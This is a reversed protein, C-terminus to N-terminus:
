EMPVARVSNSQLHNELNVGKSESHGACVSDSRTPGSVELGVFLRPHIFATYERRCGQPIAPLRTPGVDDGGIFLRRITILHFSLCTPRECVPCLIFNIWKLWHFGLLRPFSKLTPDKSYCASITQEV